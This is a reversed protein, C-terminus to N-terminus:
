DGEEKRVVELCGGWVGVMEVKMKITDKVGKPNNTKRKEEEHNRRNDGKKKHGERNTEQQAGKM